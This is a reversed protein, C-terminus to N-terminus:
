TFTELSQKITKAIMKFNTKNAKTKAKSIRGDPNPKIKKRFTYEEKIFEVCLAQLELVFQRSHESAAQKHLSSFIISLRSLAQNLQDTSLPQRSDGYVVNFEHILSDEIKWSESALSGFAPHSIYNQSVLEKLNM